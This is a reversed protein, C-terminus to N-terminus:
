KVQKKKETDTKQPTPKKVVMLPTPIVSKPIKWPRLTIRRGDYQSRLDYRVRVAGIAAFNRESEVVGFEDKGTTRSWNTFKEVPIHWEGKYVFPSNDEAAEERTQVPKNALYCEIWYKMREEVTQEGVAEVTMFKNWNPCIVNDWIKQSIRLSIQTREFVRKIFPKRSHFQETNEFFIQQDFWEIKKLIRNYVPKKTEAIYSASKESMLEKVSIFEIQKGFAYNITKRGEEGYPDFKKEYDTGILPSIHQLYDEVKMQAVSARALAITREIYDPRLAKQLSPKGEINPNNQNERYFAIITDAMEQSTWGAQAMFNALSQSYSSASRDKWKKTEEIGRQAKFTQGFRPDIENLDQFRDAPPRANPDLVLDSSVHVIGGLNKKTNVQDAAVIFEEFDNEPDGYEIGTDLILKVELPNAPDKRNYTGPLRLVRTVDHTSDIDWGKEKARQRITEQLRQCLQEAAERQEATEFMLPEKYLWWGHVGNGSGIILSPDIGYGVILDIAAQINEVGNPKDDKKLDIDIWSAVVGIIDDKKGRGSKIGPRVLGGTTYINQPGTVITDIFDAADRAHDFFNSRQLPLQHILIKSDTPKNAFLRELFIRYDM